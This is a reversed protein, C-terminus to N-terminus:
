AIIEFEKYILAFTLFLYGNLLLHHLYFGDTEKSSLHLCLGVFLNVERLDCELTYLVIKTLKICFSFM